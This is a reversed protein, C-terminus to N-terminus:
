EIQSRAGGLVDSGRTASSERASVDM